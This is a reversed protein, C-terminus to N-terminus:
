YSCGNAGSFFSFTSCCQERWAGLHTRRQKGSAQCVFAMPADGNGWDHLAHNFHAPDQSDGDCDNVGADVGNKSVFCGTTGADCVSDCVPPYFVGVSEDTGTLGDYSHAALFDADVRSGDAWAWNGASDSKLGLMIPKTYHQSCPSM